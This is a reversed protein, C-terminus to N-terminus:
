NINVSTSNSLKNHHELLPYLHELVAPITEQLDGPVIYDETSLYRPINIDFAIIIGGPNNRKYWGLFGRDDHSLGICIVAAIAHLEQPKVHKKLSSASICYPMIGSRQHLFDFNETMIQTAKHLAIQALAMHAKTPKATFAQKCFDAFNKLIPEEHKLIYAVSHLWPLEYNLGLTKMLKDMDHVNAQLSIGAGTYFIINKNLIYRAVDIISMIQPTNYQNRVIERMTDIYYEENEESPQLHAIEKTIQDYMTSIHVFEGSEDQTFQQQEIQPLEKSFFNIKLATRGDHYLFNINGLPSSFTANWYQPLMNVDTLSLIESKRLLFNESAILLTTNLIFVFSCLLKKM